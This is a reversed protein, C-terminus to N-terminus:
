PTKKMSEKKVQMRCTDFAVDAGRPPKKVYFRLAQFPYTLKPWPTLAKELSGMVESSIILVMNRVNSEKALDQVFTVIMQPHEASEDRPIWNDLSTYSDDTFTNEFISNSSVAVLHFFVWFIRPLLNFM